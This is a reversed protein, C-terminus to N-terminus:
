LASQPRIKPEPTNAGTHLTVGTDSPPVPCRHESCVHSLREVDRWGTLQQPSILAGAVRERGARQGTQSAGAMRTPVSGEAAWLPFPAATGVAESSSGGAARVGPGLVTWSMGSVGECRRSPRRKVPRHSARVPQRLFAMMM